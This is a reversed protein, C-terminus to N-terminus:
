ENSDELFDQVFEDLEKDEELESDFEKEFSEKEEKVEEKLEEEIQEDVKDNKSEKKSSEEPECSDDSFICGSGVEEGALYARWDFVAEVAAIAVEIMSDDPEATTLRQMLLGPSSIIKIFLNDKRGALRLIEYSIGAVVPVM